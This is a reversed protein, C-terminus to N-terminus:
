NEREWAASSDEALPGHELVESIPSRFRPDVDTESGDIFLIDLVM